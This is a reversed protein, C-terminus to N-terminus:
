TETEEDSGKSTLRGASQARQIKAARIQDALSVGRRMNEKKVFELDWKEAAPQSRSTVDESGATAMSSKKVKPLKAMVVLERSFLSGRREKEKQARKQEARAKAKEAKKLKREQALLVKKEAKDKARKQRAIEKAKEQEAKEQLEAQRIELQQKDYSDWELEQQEIGGIRAAEAIIGQWELCCQQQMSMRKLRRKWARKLAFGIRAKSQEFHLVTAALSVLKFGHKSHSRPCEVMKKRVKPDRLAELTRRKILERTEISHRKGKNWPVKGKNAESIKRRREMENFEKMRKRKSSREKQQDIVQQVDDVLDEVNNEFLTSTMSSIGTPETKRGHLHNGGLRSDDEGISLQLAASGKVRSLSCSGFAYYFNRRQMTIYNILTKTPHFHATDMKYSWNPGFHSDVALDPPRSTVPILHFCPMRFFLQTGAVLKM